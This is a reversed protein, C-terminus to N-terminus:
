VVARNKTAAWSTMPEMHTSWKVRVWSVLLRVLTTPELKATVSIKDLGIIEVTSDADVTVPGNHVTVTSSAGGKGGGGGPM